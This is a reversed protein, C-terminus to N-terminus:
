FAIVLGFSVTLVDTDSHFIEDTNILNTISLSSAEKLYDAKGGILYHIKLDM